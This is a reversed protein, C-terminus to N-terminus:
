TNKIEGFLCQGFNPLSSMSIMRLLQFYKKKQLHNTINEAKGGIMLTKLINILIIKKNKLFESVAVHLKSNDM